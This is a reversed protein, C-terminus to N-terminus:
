NLFLIDLLRTEQLSILFLQMIMQEFKLFFKILETPKPNQFVDKVSFIEKLENTGDATTALEYLISREKIKLMRRYFLNKM